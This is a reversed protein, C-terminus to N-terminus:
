RAAHTDGVIVALCEVWLGLADRKETAYDYHNAFALMVGTSTTIRKFAAWLADPCDPVRM